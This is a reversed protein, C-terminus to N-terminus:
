YEGELAKLQNAQNKNTVGSKKSLRKKVKKKARKEAEEKSIPGTDKEPNLKSGYGIGKPM